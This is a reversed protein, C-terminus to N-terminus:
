EGIYEVQEENTVEIMLDKPVTLYVILASSSSGYSMIHDFDSNSFQNLLDNDHFSVHEIVPFPQPQFTMSGTTWEPEIIKVYKTFDYNNVLFLPSYITEEVKSDNIDKRKIYIQTGYGPSTIMLHDGITHTRNVLVRSPDIDEGATIANLLDDESDISSAELTLPVAHNPEMFEAIVTAVLLVSIYTLIISLHIRKNIHINVVSHNIKKTRFILIITIMILFPILALISTM